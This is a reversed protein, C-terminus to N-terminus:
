KGLNISVDPCALNRDDVLHDVPHNPFSPLGVKPHDRVPVVVRVTVKVPKDRTIDVMRRHESERRATTSNNKEVHNEGPFFFILFPNFHSLSKWAYTMINGWIM